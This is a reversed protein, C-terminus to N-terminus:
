TKNIEFISFEYYLITINIKKLKLYLINKLIFNNKNITTISIFNNM